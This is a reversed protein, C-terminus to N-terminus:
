TILNITELESLEYDFHIQLFVRAPNLRAGQFRFPSMWFSQLTAAAIGRKKPCTRSNCFAAATRNRNSEIGNFDSGIYPFIRARCSEQRDALASWNAM